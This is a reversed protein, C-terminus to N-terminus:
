GRFQSVNIHEHWKLTELLNQFKQYNQGCKVKSKLRKRGRLTLIVENPRVISNYFCTNSWGLGALCFVITNPIGKPEM